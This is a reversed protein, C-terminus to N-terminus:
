TFFYLGKGLPTKERRGMPRLGMPHRSFVGGWSASEVGFVGGWPGLAWPAATSMLRGRLSSVRLQRM